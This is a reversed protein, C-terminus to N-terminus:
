NCKKSERQIYTERAFARPFPPLLPLFSLSLSLFFSFCPSFIFIFLSSPLSNLERHVCLLTDITTAKWPERGGRSLRPAYPLGAEGGGEPLRYWTKDETQM